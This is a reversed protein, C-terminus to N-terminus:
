TLPKEAALNTKSDKNYKSQKYTAGRLAGGHRNRVLKEVCAAPSNGVGKM